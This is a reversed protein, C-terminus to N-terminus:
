WILIAIISFIAEFLILLLVLQKERLGNFLNLILSPLGVIVSCTLKDGVLRTLEIEKPFKNKIKFVFDIFYPLIIILGVYEFNGIIVAAAIAAGISLAGVDGPFIRAPYWNFFLFAFLAGAMALMLVLADPKNLQWAVVALSSCAVLGMGAELGNFGALMNTVNSAVTVGLPILILPYIIPLYLTGFIPLTIYPDGAAVAILPISAFVPLIAKVSQRMRVLDDFMGIMAILLITTVAALVNMLSDFELTHSPSIMGSASLTAFAIALMVGAVFGAVIAIGGMEPIRPSHSKHVDRGLIGVDRFKRILIPTSLFTVVFSAVLVLLLLYM